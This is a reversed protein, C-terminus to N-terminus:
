RNNINIFWINPRYRTSTLQSLTKLCRGVPSETWFAQCYVKNAYVYVIFTLITAFHYVIDYIHKSITDAVEGEIENPDGLSKSEVLYFISIPIVCATYILLPTFFDRYNRCHCIIDICNLKADNVYESHKALHRLVLLVTEIDYWWSTLNKLVIEKMQSREETQTVLIM